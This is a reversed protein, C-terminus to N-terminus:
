ALARLLQRGSWDGVGVRPLMFPDTDSTVAGRITSCAYKFGARKVLDATDDGVDGYPYAFGTPAQGVLEECTARSRVLEDYQSIPPQRSMMPHSVSHAGIEAWGHQALSEAEDEDLPRHACRDRSQAAGVLTAIEDLFHRQEVASLPRLRRWIALLLSLRDHDCPERLHRWAARLRRGLSVRERVAIDDLRLLCEKKLVELSLDATNLVLHQLEDWWFERRGIYGTALFFTAPLAFRELLPKAAHLNDSYGDDFTIAVTEDTLCHEELDSVLQRLSVVRRTQQLAELQDSFNRPSVCISWPDAQPVAIRHYMLIVAGGIRPKSKFPTIV